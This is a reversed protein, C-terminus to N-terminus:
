QFGNQDEGPTEVPRGAKPRQIRKIEASNKEGIFAAIKLMRANKEEATLPEPEIYTEEDDFRFNFNVFTYGSDIRELTLESNSNVLPSTRVEKELAADTMEAVDESIFILSEAIIENRSWKEYLVDFDGFKVQGRFLIVTDNEVTVGSFKDSM